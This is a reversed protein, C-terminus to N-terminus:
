GFVPLPKVTYVHRLSRGLVPDELEVEFRDAARIGGIAALTGCLMATGDVFEGGHESYKALVDQPSRMATVKGEQYLMREGGITAHSRLILQDWHEAVESFRWLASSCPKDCMQKSVTIGYTEVERDTHDSGVGVFIEGNNKLLVFEVEGSSHSGSVQIEPMAGLREAAVRYFVPTYAPRKVGLAELEQIHKEMAITDRGTWGAIVLTEVTVAREFKGSRDEINFIHTKM